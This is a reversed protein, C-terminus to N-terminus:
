KLNERILENIQKRLKLVNQEGRPYDTMTMKKVRGPTAKDLLENVKETGILKELLRLARLDQLGEAFVEHHISEVPTGDKGPYVMFADGPPFAFNSNTDEYPNLPFQSLTSFWFNFGWQLFGEIDYRFLLAGLIRNRSSPFHLFRNSVKHTQGCCYYTWLPKVNAEVFPEIHNESPIPLPVLGTKYFEVSSLADCVRFGKTYKRLTEAAIKFKEMYNASPEDSCHFFVNKQMKKQKFYGTLEPMLAALFDHYEKSDSATHWGFIKEEKGNVTAVIKPAYEAGWQSFLHSIEFYKIGYKKALTIWRDLLSFDFSYKGKKDVKVKVLQVTPRERGVETDLPPTFVPTLVMNSGHEAYSKFYNEVLTWYAESFVPANYYVSLCDSHFWHTVILEQPPLVADLVELNVTVSKSVVPDTGGPKPGAHLTVKVPYTGAKCTKPVDVTIWVTKWQNVTYRFTGNELPYLIDPYLGPEKSIIDDDFEYATHRVPVLETRRALVNKLPSETEVHMYGGWSETIRYAIQFSYREGKLVTGARCGKIKSMDESPFIKALSSISKIELKAM